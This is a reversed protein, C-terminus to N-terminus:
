VIAHKHIKWTCVSLVRLPQMLSNSTGLIRRIKSLTNRAVTQSLDGRKAYCSTGTVRGQLKQEYEERRWPNLCSDPSWFRSSPTQSHSRGLPASCWKKEGEGEEARRSDAHELQKPFSMICIHYKGKVAWCCFQTVSKPRLHCYQRLLYRSTFLAEHPPWISILAGNTVDPERYFAAYCCLFSIFWSITCYRSHNYFFFRSSIKKM